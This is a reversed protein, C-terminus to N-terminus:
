KMNMTIMDPMAFPGQLYSWDGLLNSYGKRHAVTVPMNGNSRDRRFSTAVLQPICHVGV